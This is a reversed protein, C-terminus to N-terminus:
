EQVYVVDGEELGQVIEVNIGDTSGTKVNVRQRKGDVDQYVYTGGSGQVVATRPLQLVKQKEGQILLIKGYDGLTIEGEPDTVQFQSYAKQGYNNIMREYDESRPVFTVDYEKGDKWFIVKEAKELVATFIAECRAYLVSPDSVALYYLGTDIDEGYETGEAELATVVGDFPARIENGNYLKRLKALRTDLHSRDLEYTEGLQRLQLELRKRQEDFTGAQTAMDAFKQSPYELVKLENYVNDLELGAIKIQNELTAKQYEYNVTLSELEKESDAIMEKYKLVDPVALVQGKTVEDGIQVRYEGFAGGEAFTLQETMAGVKADYATMVRLDGRFVETKQPETLVASELEIVAAGADPKQGKDACGTMVAFATVGALLMGIQKKRKM